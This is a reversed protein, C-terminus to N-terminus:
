GQQSTVLVSNILNFILGLHRVTRNNLHCYRKFYLPHLFKTISEINVSEINISEINVIKTAMAKLYNIRQPINTHHGEIVM